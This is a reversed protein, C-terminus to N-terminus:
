EAASDNYEARQNGEHTFRESSDSNNMKKNIEHSFGGSSDEEATALNAAPAEAIAILIATPAEQLAPPVDLTFGLPPIDEM